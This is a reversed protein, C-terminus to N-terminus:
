NVHLNAAILEPISMESEIITLGGDVAGDGEEDGRNPRKAAIAIELEAIKEALAAADKRAKQRIGAPWKAKEIVVAGNPTVMTHSVTTEDESISLQWTHDARLRRLKRELADVENTAVDAAADEDRDCDIRKRIKAVVGRVTRLASEHSDSKLTGETLMANAIDRPELGERLFLHEIRGDRKALYAKQSEDEPAANQKTKRAM